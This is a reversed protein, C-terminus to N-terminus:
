RGARDRKVDDHKDSGNNCDNDVHIKIPVAVGVADSRAVTPSTAPASLMAVSGAVAPSTAPVSIMGVSGAVSFLTAPEIIVTIPTFRAM